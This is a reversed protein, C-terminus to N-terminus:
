CSKPPQWISDVESSLIFQDSYGSFATKSMEIPKQILLQIALPVFDAMVSAVCVSPAKFPLEMDREYDKDKPSGHLYHIALFRLASIGKDEMQHESFHKFVVPLKILQAAVSTSLVYITLFM